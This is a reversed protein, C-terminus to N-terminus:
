PVLISRTLLSPPRGGGPNGDMYRLTVTGSTVNQVAGFRGPTSEALVVLITSAGYSLQVSISGKGALDPDVVGIRVAPALPLGVDTLALQALVGSQSSFPNDGGVAAVRWGDKGRHLLFQSRGTNLDPRLDTASLFRKEWSTQIIAVDPGAMTQTDLLHLRIQKLRSSDQVMGDIFRQYGVMAPDLRSRLLGINGSEYARIFEELAQQAKNAEALDAVPVEAPRSGQAIASEAFGGLGALGLCTALSLLALRKTRNM